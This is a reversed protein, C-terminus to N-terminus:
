EQTVEEVVEPMGDLTAGAQSTEELAADQVMSDQEVADQPTEMKKAIQQQTPDQEEQDKKWDQTAWSAYEEYTVRRTSLRVREEQPDIEILRALVKDGERFMERPSGGVGSLEAESLHLLGVVDEALQIFVGYDQVNTVTGELLAGVEHEEAFKQWPSPLLAKRSLSIRERERDVDLVLVNVQDDVSLVESPHNIHTWDLQSIHILGDIAGLDVFAGFDVINKVTGTLTQGTHLEGLRQKRRIAIAARASLVLRKRYVDVQIVQVPVSTGIMKAKIAQENGGRRLDPIHSNPVFGQLRSFQVLIGGGNYGTVELELIEKSELLKEAKEWDERELGKQISVTLNDGVVPVNTVYVPVQDGIAINELYEEGLQDLDRMPVLAEQKAGIDILAFEDEIHIIEGSLYDGARIRQPEFEELLEAFTNSEVHNEELTLM